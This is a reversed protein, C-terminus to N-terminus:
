TMIGDDQPSGWMLFLSDTEREAGGGREHVREKERENETQFLCVFDKFFSMCTSLFNISLHEVDYIILYNCILVLNFHSVM